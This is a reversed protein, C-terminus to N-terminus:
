LLEIGVVSLNQARTTLLLPVIGTGTCLDCVRWGDQVNPYNALLISDMNFKPLAQNQIIQLNNRMLDEIKDGPSLSNM